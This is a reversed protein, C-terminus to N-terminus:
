VTRTSLVIVSLLPEEEMAETQPPQRDMSSAPPAPPLAPLGRTSQAARRCASRPAWNEKAPRSCGKAACSCSEFALPGLASARPKTPSRSAAEPCSHRDTRTGAAVDQCGGGKLCGMCQMKQKGCGTGVQWVLMGPGESQAEGEAEAVATVPTGSLRMTAPTAMPRTSSGLPSYTTSVSMRTRPLFSPLAALRRAPGGAAAQARAAADHASWAGVCPSHSGREHETM